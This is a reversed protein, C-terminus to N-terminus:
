TTELLAAPTFRHMPIDVNVSAQLKLSFAKGVLPTPWWGATDTRPAAMLGATMEEPVWCDPIEWLADPAGGGLCPHRHIKPDGQQGSQIATLFSCHGQATSVSCTDLRVNM